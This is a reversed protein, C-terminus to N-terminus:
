DIFILSRIKRRHEETDEWGIDRLVVGPLESQLDAEKQNLQKLQADNEVLTNVAKRKSIYNDLDKKFKSYSLYKSEDPMDGIPNASYLEKERKYIAHRTSHYEDVYKKFEPSVGETHYWSGSEKNIRNYLTLYLDQQKLPLDDWDHEEWSDLLETEKKEKEAKDKISRFDTQQELRKNFAAKDTLFLLKEEDTYGTLNSTLAKGADTMKGDNSIFAKKGKDTLDGKDTYYRKKGAATLSGDPNQFRRIGWKQGLIGHHCLYEGAVDAFAYRKIMEEPRM